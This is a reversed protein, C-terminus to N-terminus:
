VHGDEVHQRLELVAALLEVREDRADLVLIPMRTEHAEAMADVLVEVRARPDDLFRAVREQLLEADIVRQELEGQPELLDGQVVLVEDLALEIGVHVIVAADDHTREADRRVHERHHERDTAQRAPDRVPAFDADASCLADVPRPLDVGARRLASVNRHLLALLAILIRITQASNAGHAFVPPSASATAPSLSASQAPPWSTRTSM